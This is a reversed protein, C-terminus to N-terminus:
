FIIDQTSPPPIFQLYLFAFILILCSFCPFFFTSLFVCIYINLHFTHISFHRFFFIHFHLCFFVSQFICFSFRLFLLVTRRWSGCTPYRSYHIKAMVEETWPPTDWDRPSVGTWSLPHVGNGPPLVGNWTPPPVRTGSPPVGTGSLPAGMGLCPARYAPSTVTNPHGRPQVQSLVPTGGLLSRPGTFTNHSPFPTGGVSLSSLCVSAQSFMVEAWGESATALIHFSLCLLLCCFVETYLDQLRTIAQPM